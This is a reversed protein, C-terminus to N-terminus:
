NSKIRSLIAEYELGLEMMAQAHNKAKNYRENNQPIAICFGFYENCIAARLDDPIMYINKSINPPYQTGTCQYKASSYEVDELACCCFETGIRQMDLHIEKETRINM